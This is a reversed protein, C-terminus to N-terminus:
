PKLVLADQANLLAVGEQYLYGVSRDERVLLADVPETLTHGNGQSILGNAIKKNLATLSRKSMMKLASHDQPCRLLAFFEPNMTNSETM